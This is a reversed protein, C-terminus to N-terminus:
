WTAAASRVWAHTTGDGTYAYINTADAAWDGPLSATTATAPVAVRGGLKAGNVVPGGSLTPSVLTKNSLSQAGTTTVVPIGNAKVQGAGKAGLTLDVDTDSGSADVYVGNGTDSGFVRLFNVGAPTSRVEIATKQGPSVWATNVSPQTSLWSKSDSGSIQEIKPNTLTKNSLTATVPGFWALIHAKLSLWSFRKVKFSDASDAIAFGDADVVTTVVPAAHVPDLQSRLEAVTIKQSVGGVSGALVSDADALVSVHPLKTVDVGSSAPGPDGKPGAPGAPGVPGAPGQGGGVGILVGSPEGADGFVFGDGSGLVGGSFSMAM